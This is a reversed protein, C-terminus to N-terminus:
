ASFHTPTHKIAVEKEPVEPAEKSQKSPAIQVWADKLEMLLKKIHMLKSVDNNINAELLEKAFFTYLNELNQALDGGKKKNLGGRLGSEIIFIARTILRGKEAINNLTLHQAAENLSQIAGDFLLTILHHPDAALIGTELNVKSYLNAADTPSTSFM